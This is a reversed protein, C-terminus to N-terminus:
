GLGTRALLLSRRVCPREKILCWISQDSHVVGSNWCDNNGTSLGSMSSACVVQWASQRRNRDKSALQWSLRINHLDVGTPNTMNECTAALVRVGTSPAVSARDSLASVRGSAPRQGNASAEDAGWHTAEKGLTLELVGGAMIDSHDLWCKEYPKGNLLASQIYINEPSNHHAIITFTKGRAYASDLRIM